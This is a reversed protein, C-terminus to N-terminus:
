RTGVLLGIIVLSESVWRTIRLRAACCSASSAVGGPLSGAAARSATRRLMIALPSNSSTGAGRSATASPQRCSSSPAQIASRMETEEEIRILVPALSEDGGELEAKLDLFRLLALDALERHDRPTRELSEAFERVQAAKWPSLDGDAEARRRVRQMLYAWADKREVAALFSDLDAIGRVLAFKAIRASDLDDITVIRFRPREGEEDPATVIDPPSSSSVDGTQAVEAVRGASPPPLLRECFELDTKPRWAAIRSTILLHLRDEAGRVKTAFKRIAREFDSPGRLRAEDVSDLLVWGEDQSNKWREFGDLDGVEFAADLDDVVHELRLFFAHCGGDRWRAAAHRIEETKGAGAEALLVVRREMKLDAWTISPGRRFAQSVDVDDSERAYDSLEHFTRDLDIFGRSLSGSM